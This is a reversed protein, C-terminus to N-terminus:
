TNHTLRIKHRRLLQGFVAREIASEDHFCGMIRLRERLSRILRELPNNTRVRKWWNVPLDYFSLSDSLDELFHAVAIPATSEWRERWATAAELAALRSPCRFLCAAEAVMADRYATVGIDRRLQALRHFLCHQWPVEPYVRELAARIAGSEDSVIMQVGELGRQRLDALLATCQEGTSVCFGLVDLHGDARRGAVLMVTRGSGVMAVHMGDIHVVPYIPAIPQSRWRALEADLWRMLHSITQHSLAGGFLQEALRATDRTSVGLLCAHRLLRDVDAIRRQYREFIMAPDFGGRRIRPVRLTLTGHPTMLSRRRYGNRHGRREPTQENWAAGLREHVLGELAMELLGRVLRGVHQDLWSWFIEQRQIEEIPLSCESPKM